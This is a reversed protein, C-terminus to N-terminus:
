TADGGACSGTVHVERSLSQAFSQRDTRRHFDVEATMGLMAKDAKVIIHQLRFCAPATRDGIGRDGGESAQPHPDRVTRYGAFRQQQKFVQDFYGAFTM